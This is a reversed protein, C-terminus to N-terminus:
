APSRGSRRDPPLKCVERWGLFSFQWDQRLQTFEPTQPLAGAPRLTKFIELTDMVEQFREM